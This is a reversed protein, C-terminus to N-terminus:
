KEMKDIKVKDTIVRGSNRASGNAPLVGGM